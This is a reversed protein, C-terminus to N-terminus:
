PTARGRAAPLEHSPVTEESVDFALHAASRDVVTLCVGNVAISDASRPTPRWPAARSAWGPPRRRSRGVGREEVIGTFM